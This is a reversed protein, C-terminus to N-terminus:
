HTYELVGELADYYSFSLAERGHRQVHDSSQAAASMM